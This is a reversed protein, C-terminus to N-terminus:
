GFLSVKAIYKSFPLGGERAFAWLMQSATALIGVCGFTLTTIIISALHFKILLTLFLLWFIFLLFVFFFFFFFLFFFVYLLM